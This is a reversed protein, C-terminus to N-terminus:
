DSRPAADGLVTVARNHTVARHWQNGLNLMYHENRIHRVTGRVYVGGVTTGCNRCTVDLGTDTDIFRTDGCDPCTKRVHFAKDRPIHRGLHKDRTSFPLSGDPQRCNRLPKRVEGTPTFGDPTPIFFWEGQRQVQKGRREAEKVAGPKLLHLADSPTELAEIENRSVHFAIWARRSHHTEDRGTYFGSGDPLEVVSGRGDSTVTQIDYLDYDTAALLMQLGTLPLRHRVGTPPTCTAFGRSWCQANRIEVGTRTRIAEITSYHVLRGSGDRHQIGRFNGNSTRIVGGSKVPYKRNSWAEAVHRQTKRVVRTSSGYREPVETQIQM